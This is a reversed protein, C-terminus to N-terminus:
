TWIELYDRVARELSFEALAFERIKVLDLDKIGELWELCAGENEPDLFFAFDKSVLQQETDGVGRSAIVPLGMLLYEGLKIPALGALSPAFKRLSLGVDGASLYKPIEQFSGSKVVVSGAVGAPIKGELFDGQRTLILFKSKSHKAQYKGFLSLMRDVEYPIGLSGTYVWLMEGDVLGLSERVQKRSEPDPQFFDADRGNAVKLFKERYPEGINYLHIDIAAQSRSLVLDARQLMKSEESKLKRYQYSKTKLGAFDVREELPLGDADFVVKVQERKLWDWLRNVMMAPMTSRPMLVDIRHARVYDRTIRVGQYVTWLAGLGAVPKRHIPFQSYFIGMAAALQQIRHVEQPKAWSFQLVHAELGVAEGLGKLIPFFLSELYNSQDSDWTVFLLKKKTLGM